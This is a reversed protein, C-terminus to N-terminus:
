PADTADRALRSPAAIPVSTAPSGSTTRAPRLAVYGGVAIAVAILGIAGFLFTGALAALGLGGLFALVPGACCGACAVAGLGVIGLGRRTDDTM